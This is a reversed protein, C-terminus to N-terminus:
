KMSFHRSLANASTLTAQQPQILEKKIKTQLNEKFDHMFSGALKM